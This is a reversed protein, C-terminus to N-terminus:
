AVFNLASFEGKISPMADSCSTVLLFSESARGDEVATSPSWRMVGKPEMRDFGEGEFREETIVVVVVDVIDVVAKDEVVLAKM